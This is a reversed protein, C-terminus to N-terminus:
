TEIQRKFIQGPQIDLDAQNSYVTCLTYGLGVRQKIEKVMIWSCEQDHTYTQSAVRYLIMTFLIM